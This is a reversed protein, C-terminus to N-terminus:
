IAVVDHSGYPFVFANDNPSAQINKNRAQPLNELRIIRNRNFGNMPYTVAQLNLISGVKAAKPIIIGHCVESASDM